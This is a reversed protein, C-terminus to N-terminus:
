SRQFFYNNRLFIVESYFVDLLPDKEKTEEGSPESSAELKIGAEQDNKESSTAQAPEDKVPSKKTEM